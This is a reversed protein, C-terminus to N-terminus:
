WAAFYKFVISFNISYCWRWRWQINSVPSTIESSSPDMLQQGEGFDEHEESNLGKNDELDKPHYYTRRNISRSIDDDDDDDDDFTVLWALNRSTQLNRLPVPILCSPTRPSEQDKREWCRKVLLTSFHEDKLTIDFIMMILIMLVNNDVSNEIDDNALSDVVLKQEGMVEKQYASPDSILRSGGGAEDNNDDDVQLYYILRSCNWNYM